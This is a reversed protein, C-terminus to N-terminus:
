ILASHAALRCKLVIIVERIANVGPCHLILGVQKVLLWLPFLFSISELLVCGSHLCKQHLLFDMTPSSRCFTYFACSPALWEWIGMCAVKIFVSYLTLILAIDLDGSGSLLWGALAQEVAARWVM